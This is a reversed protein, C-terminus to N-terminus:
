RSRVLSEVEFFQPQSALGKGTVAHVAPAIRDTGFRRFKDSSEWIDYVYWGGDSPGASHVILGDPADAPRMPYHGFLKETVQEFQDQTLGPMEVLVGVAM